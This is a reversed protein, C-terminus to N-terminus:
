ENDYVPNLTKLFDPKLIGFFLDKGIQHAESLVNLLDVVSNTELKRIIDIDITSAIVTTIKHEDAIVQQQNHNLSLLVAYDGREFESKFQYSKSKVDPQNFSFGFLVCDQLNTNPYESIYRVGIRAFSTIVQGNDILLLAKEIESLYEEWGQYAGNWTFAFSNPRVVITIKSNHYINQNGVKINFSQPAGSLTLPVNPMPRVTYEFNKELFLKYLLGAVLDFPVKSVYRVEVIASKINDPSIKNPSKKQM